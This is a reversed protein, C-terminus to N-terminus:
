EHPTIKYTVNGCGELGNVGFVGSTNETVGGTWLDKLEFSVAKSFKECDPMKKGIYEAIDSVSVSVSRDSAEESLNFFSLVVSGDSLPKALM